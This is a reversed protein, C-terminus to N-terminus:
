ILMHYIWGRYSFFSSLVVQRLAVTGGESITSLLTFWSPDPDLTCLILTLCFNDVYILALECIMLFM